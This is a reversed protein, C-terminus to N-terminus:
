LAKIPLSIDADISGDAKQNEDVIDSAKGNTSINQFSLTCSILTM